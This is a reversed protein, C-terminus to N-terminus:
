NPWWRSGNVEDRARMGRYRRQITVSDNMQLIDAESRYEHDLVGADAAGALPFILDGARLRDLKKRANLAREPPKGQRDPRHDWLRWMALDCVLGSLEAGGNTGALAVLDAVTYREGALCGAEVEGSAEKLFAALKPSALIQAHSLATGDISLLRAVTREDWRLLFDDVTAYPAAGSIVTQAM